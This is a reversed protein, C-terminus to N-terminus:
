FVHLTTLMIMYLVIAAVVGLVFFRKFMPQDTKLHMYYAAVLVFKVIAWFLLLGVILGSTIGLQRM